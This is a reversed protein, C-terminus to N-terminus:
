NSGVQLESGALDEVSRMVKALRRCVVYWDVFSCIWINLTGITRLCRPKWM